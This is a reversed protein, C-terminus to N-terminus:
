GGQLAVDDGRNLRDFGHIEGRVLTALGLGAVARISLELALALGFTAILPGRLERLHMPFNCGRLPVIAGLRQVSEHM